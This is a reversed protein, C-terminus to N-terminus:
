PQIPQPRSSPQELLLGNGHTQTPLTMTSVTKLLIPAFILFVFGAVILFFQIEPRRLAPAELIVFYLLSGLVFGVVAWCIFPPFHGGLSFITDCFTLFNASIFALALLSYMVGMCIVYIVGVILGLVLAAGILQPM